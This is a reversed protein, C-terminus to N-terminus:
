SNKLAACAFRLLALQRRLRWPERVLRFLWEFGAERIFLPARPIKRSFYDFAGGVVMTGYTKLKNYNSAVWKEQKPAGFGVFLLHPSFKNIKKIAEKEKEEEKKNVPKGNDNLWPGPDSSIALNSFKAKLDQATKAAIGPRGGLLFVRWSEKSALKVLEELIDTGSVREQLVTNKPHRRALLRSAWVLGVGDPLRLDANNLIQMLSPDKQAMMVIEPNPTVIFFRNKQHIKRQVFKLVGGKSTSDLKIKLVLGYKRAKRSTNKKDKRSNKRNKLNKLRM